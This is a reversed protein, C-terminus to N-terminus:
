QLMVCMFLMKLVYIKISSVCPKYVVLTVHCLRVTVLVYYTTLWSSALAGNNSQGELKGLDKESLLEQHGCMLNRMAMAVM